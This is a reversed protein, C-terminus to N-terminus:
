MLVVRKKRLLVLVADVTKKRSPAHRMRHELEGAISVNCPHIIKLLKRTNEKYLLDRTPKVKKDNLCVLEPLSLNVCTKRLWTLVNKETENFIAPSLVIKPNACVACRCLAYYKDLDDGRGVTVVLRKRVLGNVTEIEDKTEACAFEFRGKCWMRAEVGLIEMPQGFHRIYLGFTSKGIVIGKSIYMM